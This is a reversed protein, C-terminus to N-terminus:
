QQVEESDLYGSPPVGYAERFCKTFYTPNNFGVAYAVEAVTGFRKDLLQAARQLRITRIFAKPALGTLASLKRQLQRLSMSLAESFADVNFHVDSLHNEVAERARQVFAEEASSVAIDGPQIVVEQSFRARLHRQRTILREVRARLAGANFPKVLYDDAGTELGAVESVPSAKATLMIVPIHNLVEDARLARCFAHGDMVPMMVDTIILDPVLAGAQDLGEAGDAAELVQYDPALCARLYARMEPHDDVLLVLPAEESPSADLLPLDAASIAQEVEGLGVDLRGLPPGEHTPLMSATEEGPRELGRPLTVIFGSGFGVESEVRIQGHHQDILAKALALGIGTGAQTTATEWSGQQFRDFLTPLIAPPIGPGTDKVRIEVHHTQAAVRLRVTGGEPTFKFANSLLNIFVKDLKEADFAAVIHDTEPEFLLTIQRQEAHSSFAAVLRGLWPVLDVRRIHLATSDAELKSLDLLQNILRLLRQANQYIVSMVQRVPAPLTAKSRDLLDELPGIILTLPTRFEHSMNDFFRSKVRLLRENEQRKEDLLRAQGFATRAYAELAYGAFMGIINASILFFSSSLVVSFAVAEVGLLVAEYAVIILGGVVSAYTYRLRLMVYGGLVLLVPGDRYAGSQDIGMMAVLGLGAILLTGGLLPQMFRKFSPTFTIGFVGLAVVCVGARIMWIVPRQPANTWLDLLGFLVGYMVLGLVLAWRVQKFSQSVYTDLFARELDPDFFRLTFRHRQLSSM